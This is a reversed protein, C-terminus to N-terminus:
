QWKIETKNDENFGFRYYFGAQIRFTPTLQVGRVHSYIPIEPILNLIVKQGWHWGLAPVLYIWQGGTNDLPTTNFRDATAYRFKLAVSPSILRNGLLWQDGLGMYLQYSNGFRYHETGLYERNPGNIRGVFRLSWIASPRISIQRAFYAWSVLDWSGSGPQLDANYTIGRADKLDAKGLPIKPGIGLQLETGSEAMRSLLFKVIVVGDGAGRTRVLSESGLFSIRREQVVFSVLADIAIRDTLSYGAKLLMSHTTRLRTQDEYLLSGQKLTSLYNLDYSLETQLTGRYSGEFGINGSLPVGGSCCTQSFMQGTMLILPFTIATLIKLKVKLYSM